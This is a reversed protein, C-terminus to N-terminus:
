DPSAFTHTTSYTYTVQDGHETQQYQVGGGSFVSHEFSVLYVTNTQTDAVTSSPTEGRLIVSPRQGQEDPSTATGNARTNPFFSFSCHSFSLWYSNVAVLAANNSGLRVNCGDCGSPSTDVGDVDTTAIFAVSEFHVVAATHIMVAIGRGILQLSELRIVQGEGLHFCPGAPPCGVTTMGGSVFEGDNFGGGRVMVRSGLRVTSALNYGKAGGHPPGAAGHGSNPIWVGQARVVLTLGLARSLSLWCPLIM